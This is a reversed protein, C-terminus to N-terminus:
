AYYRRLAPTMRGVRLAAELAPRALENAEANLIVIEGAKLAALAVGDRFLIRNAAIAPIREGSGRFGSLNAPDAAGIMVLEGTKESRRLSRALSVAEPLAYQEGSVGSVFYGGRLEGVAEWRRCVRIVEYWSVKLSEYDLLRRFIVGYRRLLCRTFQEVAKERESESAAHSEARNLVTWRGANELSTITRHRRAHSGAGFHERKKEPVLLARLGEFADSTVWGQVVLESLCQEVRTPLIEAQRVLEAFFSAGRNNLTEFVKAADSSFKGGAPEGVLRRWGALNERIFIAISTTKVPNLLRLDQGSIPPSLKGWGARGTLCLQDLWQPDYDEIRTAFVQPEWVAAPLELGDFMEVGVKLSQQGRLKHELDVHQWALLFRQFEALSIPQIEARLRSLTLRHIRALLRRDCWQIEENASDFKGRLLVGEKELSVLANKIEEVSLQFYEALEAETAPGILEMRSRVLERVANQHEESTSSRDYAARVTALRDVTALYREEIWVVRRDEVLENLWSKWEKGAAALEEERLVGALLLAEHLEDASTPRIWAGEKVKAIAAPDLIGVEDQTSASSSRRLYVARTRREALPANDLFSYVRANLIEHALLSPEPLERAICRISGNEIKALVATLGALDMAEKLCDDITQEVLPHNPVVRAGSHSVTANQQEPFVAHLLNEAEMRQLPAPMRKGGRHRPIALARTANWRWRIAFMPADLIAEVLVERVSRSKLMGFVDGLPFSVEPGLSIVIADDTAAAQLDVTFSRELSKRLALGWARNIRTGFPSHIVLQMGGAEDFFREAIVTEQTPMAGLSKYAERFYDVLQAAGAASLGTGTQLWNTLEEERHAKLMVEIKARLASVADSLEETRGPAEGLWFPIGPPQGHADEVRVTGSNIRLIKWSSNGLQFIDGTLSEVAFDENVTGIFTESPELLVRYDSNDAIAGGSTIALLRTGKRARLRKNVADRHILASRRGRRTAFGESLMRVVAEFEDYELDRYPYAKRALDYLERERWEECAVCAVIQQALVDLPKEPIHLRDLEGDAVAKLAAVCEVMEDRSLPFLRGKPLGGRRHEARGVRQLLAALSRISGVQCVLEVSGIDIGLELSSTAVLAKLEGRKLRDEATLRLKASLSGHHPMVLEPGLLAGLHHAVREAMRRTNVFILTTRHTQILQVLRRYVEEWVENSMVAELPAGPLEIALDMKRVYGCDIVTVRGVKGKPTSGSLFQAVDEIPKQTASLGIRQVRRGVLRDLRELSLALHSGRRNAVIAHIEDCIITRLTRLMRRGSESTLLLYFSEPTTVLIHPPRRILAQRANSSTDGSRVASRIEVDRDEASSRAARLEALPEELNKHIDNGLAKLPSVYLVQVEDKLEGGLGQRYLQDIAALFAALTKGTGTPAAILTNAGGLIAPWGRRQPETPTGFKAEFWAAVHPHFGESITWQRNKM